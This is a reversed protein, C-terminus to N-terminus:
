ASLRLDTIVHLGPLGCAPLSSDGSVLRELAARKAEGTALLLTSRATGLARRTLTVREPPPKPSSAVFAAFAGAPEGRGPFLSAVHGDSGMGLLVADLAGDFAAAWAEEVRAVAEEGSEGDLFLPLEHAPPDSPDLLGERYAAGRNSEADDFPVCREDVWTLRLRRWEGGLGSRVRGLVVAASGGPVALRPGGSGAAALARLVLRATDEVPEVSTTLRPREAAV